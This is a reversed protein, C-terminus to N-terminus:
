DERSAGAAEAAALPAMKAALLHENLSALTTHILRHWELISRDFAETYYAFVQRQAPTPVLDASEMDAKLAVLRESIAGLDADPDSQSLSQRVSTAEQLLASHVPDGALHETLSELQERLSSRAEHATRVQEISHDLQRSVNFLQQLGAPGTRVRPDIGVALPARLTQGGAALTVTYTGPLVFSGQVNTPTDEAFVAAISYEYRIARPRAYRLNWVFRHAGPAASLQPEPRLWDSEFYQDAEIPEPKDDSSFRRLVQGGSDRIELIVPGRLDPGLWYDILAGAPPNAGVPTEPPLPTDRNNNPQVRWAIAPTFLRVRERDASVELQRLPTVDDLVWIARGQTAAILDDGHVLLDRVWARPLNLQLAQWHEGDDFSVFVGEAAGAYLLGKRQPDARVVSVFQGSPLGSEIPAWTAGFDRTRFAHPQFDDHRQNDIAVYAVAPDFPSAEVSSVKSWPAVGPPTVERWNKGGDRTVHLLGSDAGVWIVDASRPSPAISVIAGYGCGRAAEISVAGDCDTADARRGTLDPSIVTWHTGHDVSRFLVQAGLLLAHPSTPTFVLPTIWGYHYKVTTPRRSYSSAPWPSVNAVEGTRGDWRSVHGGLGSGYVIDPADPDPVMFDREDGGVPHWDRFTLSGYDSRSAAAVTGSDQQGSYIWYPFRSDTALHYFQGTPQNYWDSWTRGDDLSIAAGQDCGTIWRESHQPNIWLFHYDDGGPAGKIWTWTKGADSSRGISRGPAYVVDPNRPDITLRGFYWNGVVDDSDNVRVWHAGGDDSRWIGGEKESDVMAYIRVGSSTHTVALGIRGLAGSPWGEGGLRTWSVGGDISRYIGSGAGRVPQFYSLWPWVRAQWAAAYLLNPDRPDAALSVAGTNEDIALVHSWSHGGDRSRYIGREPNAGFLHGLAAVVVVNPDRPDVWIDGIHRTAELGVATWSRGGDTSKFVGRGASVDYRPEPQGTGVYITDPESPAVALAGVSPPLADAISVWTRGANVTKWVGGGAAGFYFTDPQTPVGIAMTAWGGRFPGLLRWQLQAYASEPLPPAQARVLGVFLFCTSFILAGRLEKIISVRRGKM